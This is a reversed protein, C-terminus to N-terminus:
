FCVTKCKLAKMTAEAFVQAAEADAEAKEAENAAAEAVAIAAEADAVARAAVLAAQQASMNRMSELETDVQSKTLIKIESMDIKPPSAQQKHAEVHQLSSSSDGKRAHFLGPSPAIRYHHKVKILKGIGVLHKLTADMQKELNPPAVFQEEIHTAIAVRSSGRPENLKTVIELIVDDLRPIQRKFCDDSPLAACITLPAVDDYVDDENQVYAVIAKSDDDEKISQSTRSITKIKQRSGFGNAAVNINRWKDKLDVNSRLSLSFCFEPDKLIASWKGAGYKAIGAKLAAEEESTWKQKPAGM